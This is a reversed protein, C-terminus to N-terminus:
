LAFFAKEIGNMVSFRGNVVFLEALQQCLKEDCVNNYERLCFDWKKYQVRHLRMNCRSIVTRSTM